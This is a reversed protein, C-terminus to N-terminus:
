IDMAEGDLVTTVTTKNHSTFFFRITGQNSNPNIVQFYYRPNKKGSQLFLRKMPPPGCFNDELKKLEHHNKQDQYM